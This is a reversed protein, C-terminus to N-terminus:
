VGMSSLTLMINNLIGAVTPHEQEFTSVLMDVQEVLDVPEEGLPIDTLQQEIDEILSTLRVKDDASVSLNEIAANLEDLQEQLQQQNM